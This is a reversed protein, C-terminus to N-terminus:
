KAACAVANKVPCFRPITWDGLCGYSPEKHTSRCTLVQYSASSQRNGHLDSYIMDQGPQVRGLYTTGDIVIRAIYYPPESCDKHSIIAAEVFAGNGSNVWKYFHDGHDHQVLYQAFKKSFRTGGTSNGLTYAGAESAPSIQIRAPRYDFSDRGV